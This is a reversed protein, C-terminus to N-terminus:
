VFNYQWILLNIILVSPGCYSSMNNFIRSLAPFDKNVYIVILNDIMNLTFNEIIYLCDAPTLLLNAECAKWLSCAPSRIYM